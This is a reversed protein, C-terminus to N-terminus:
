IPKVIKQGQAFQKNFYYRHRLTKKAEMNILERSLSILFPFSIYISLLFSFYTNTSNLIYIKTKERGRNNSVCITYM